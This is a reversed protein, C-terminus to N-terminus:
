LRLSSTNSFFTYISSNLHSFLPLYSNTYGQDILWYPSVQDVYSSAKMLGIVGISLFIVEINKFRYSSNTPLNTINGIISSLFFAGASVFIM